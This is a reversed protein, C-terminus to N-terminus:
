EDSYQINTVVQNERLSVINLFLSHCGEHLHLVPYKPTHEQLLLLLLVAVTLLSCVRNYAWRPLM